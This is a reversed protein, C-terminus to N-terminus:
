PIYEIYIFMYMKFVKRIEKARELDQKSIKPSSVPSAIIRLGEFEEEVERDLEEELLRAKRELHQCGYMDGEIDKSEATHANSSPPVKVTIDMYDDEEDKTDVYKASAKSSKNM